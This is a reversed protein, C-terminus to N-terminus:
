IKINLHHNGTQTMEMAFSNLDVSKYCNGGEGAEKISIRNEHESSLLGVFCEFSAVIDDRRTFTYVNKTKLDIWNGICHYKRKEFIDTSNCPGIQFNLIDPNDCDSSM